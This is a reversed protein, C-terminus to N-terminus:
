SRRLFESSLLWHTGSDPAPPAACESVCVCVTVCVSGSVQLTQTEVSLRIGDLEHLVDTLVHLQKRFLVEQSSVLEHKLVVLLYVM